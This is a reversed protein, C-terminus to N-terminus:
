GLNQSSTHDHIVRWADGLKELVLTLVGRIRLSGQRTGFTYTVKAVALAYGPGLPVVDVTDLEMRFPNQKLSAADKRIADWGRTIDANDASTVEPVRAYLEMIAAGDARSIADVYHKVFSKVEARTDPPQQAAGSSSAVTTLVGVVALMRYRIM